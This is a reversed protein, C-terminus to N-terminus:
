GAKGRSAGRARRPHVAALAIRFRKVDNGGRRYSRRRVPTRGNRIAVALMEVEASELTGDLHQGLRMTSKAALVRPQPALDLLLRSLDARELLPQELGVLLALVHRLPDVLEHGLEVMEIRLERSGLLLSGPM